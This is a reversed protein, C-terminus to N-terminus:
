FFKVVSLHLETPTVDIQVGLKEIEAADKILQNAKVRANYLNAGVYADIVNYAWVGVAAFLFFQRLKYRQNVRNYHFLAEPSDPDRLAVPLYENDYMDQFSKHAILAGVLFGSVGVLSATGQLYSHAQFQGWGPVVASRVVAGIPSVLRLKEEPESQAFGTEDSFFALFVCFGSLYATRLKV